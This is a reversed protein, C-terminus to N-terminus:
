PDREVTFEAGTTENEVAVSGIYTLLESVESPVTCRVELTARPEFRATGRIGPVYTVPGRYTVAVQAAHLAGHITPLRQKTRVAELIAAASAAGTPDGDFCTLTLVMDRPGTLTAQIEAGPAPTPADTVRLWDQGGMAGVASLSMSIYPFIPQPM